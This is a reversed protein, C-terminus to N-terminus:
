VTLGVQVHLYFNGEEDTEWSCYCKDAAPAAVFADCKAPDRLGSLLAANVTNEALITAADFSSKIAM